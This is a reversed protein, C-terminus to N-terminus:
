LNAAELLGDSELKEIRGDSFFFKLILIIKEM